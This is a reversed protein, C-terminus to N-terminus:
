EQRRQAIHEDHMQVLRSVIQEEIEVGAAVQEESIRVWEEADKQVFIVEYKRTALDNGVVIQHGYRELAVRAKPVIL